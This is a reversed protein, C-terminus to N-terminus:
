RKTRPSLTRAHSSVVVGTALFQPHPQHRSAASRTFGPHFFRITPNVPTAATASSRPYGIVNKDDLERPSAPSVPSATTFTYTVHDPPSSLVMGTPWIGM